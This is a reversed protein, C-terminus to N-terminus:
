MKELAKLEAEEKRYQLKEIMRRKQSTVTQGRRGEGRDQGGEYPLLLVGSSAAPHKM